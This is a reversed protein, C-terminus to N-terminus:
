SRKESCPIMKDLFTLETFLHLFDQNKYVITNTVYSCRTVGVTNSTQDISSNNGGLRIVVFEDDSIFSAGSVRNSM